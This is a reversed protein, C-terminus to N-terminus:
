ESPRVRHAERRRALEEMREEYIEERNFKWGAESPQRVGGTRSERVEALIDDLAKLRESSFAREEAADLAQRVVEAETVGLQQAREKLFREHGADIYIQKRIMQAM